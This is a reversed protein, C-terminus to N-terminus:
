FYTLGGGAQWFFVFFVNESSFHPGLGRVKVYGLFCTERCGEWGVYTYGKPSLKGLM